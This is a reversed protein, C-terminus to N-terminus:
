VGKEKLGIGEYPIDSREQLKKRVDMLPLFFRHPIKM